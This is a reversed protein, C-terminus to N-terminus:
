ETGNARRIIHWITTQFSQTTVNTGNSVLVSRTGNIACFFKIDGTKYQAIKEFTTADIIQLSNQNTQAILFERTNPDYYKEIKVIPLLIDMKHLLKGHVDFTYITSLISIAVIGSKFVTVMPTSGFNKEELQVAAIFKNDFLTQFVVQLKKNISVVLGIDSSGGIAIIDDCHFSSISLLPINPDSLDWTNVSCDNGCTLLYTGGIIAACTIMAYDHQIRNVEKGNTLSVLSLYYEESEFLALKLSRSVCLVRGYSQALNKPIHKIMSILGLQNLDYYSTATFVFNKTITVIPKDSTFQITPTKLSFSDRKPHESNFIQIPVCGLNNLIHNANEVEEPSPDYEPYCEKRYVNEHDFDNRYIGFVLDIWKNIHSSVYFENELVIRNVAIYHMPQDSTWKPLLVNSFSIEEPKGDVQHMEPCFATGLDFGNENVLAQPMTFLEPILESYYKNTTLKRWEHEFSMFGRNADDFTGSQFRIHETTFPECRIMFNVINMESSYAAPYLYGMANYSEMRRPLDSEYFSQIPRELDRFNEKEHFDFTDLAHYTILFPYVPYQSLDNYSRGSLLNLYYLYSWTTIEHKQWMQTIKLKPLLSMGDMTQYIANCTTQLLKYFDFKKSLSPTPHPLHSYFLDRQGKAFQFLYSKRKYTHIDAGTQQRDFFHNFIFGIDSLSINIRKSKNDSVGEFFFHTSYLVLTGSYKRTITIYNVNTTFQEKEPIEFVAVPKFTIYNQNTQEVQQDDNRDRNRSAEVHMDFHHNISMLIRKGSMSISTSVRYKIDTQPDSWPGIGIALEYMFSNMKQLCLIKDSKVHAESRSISTEILSQSREFRKQYKQLKECELNIFIDQIANIEDHTLKKHFDILPLKERLYEKCSKNLSMLIPKQLDYDDLVLLPIIIYPNITIKLGLLIMLAQFVVYHSKRTFLLASLARINPQTPSDGVLNSLFIWVRQSVPNDQSHHISANYLIFDISPLNTFAKSNAEKAQVITETFFKIQMEKSLNSILDFNLWINHIMSNLLSERRLNKFLLLFAKLVDENFYKPDVSVLFGRLLDFGNISDFSLQMTDSIAVMKAILDIFIGLLKNDYDPNYSKLRRLLPLLSTVSGLTPLIDHPTSVFPLYMCNNSENTTNPHRITFVKHEDYKFDVPSISIVLDKCIEVPFNQITPIMKYKISIDPQDNATLTASFATIQISIDTWKYLPFEFNFPTGNFYLQQDKFEFAISTGFSIFTTLKSPYENFFVKTQIFSPIPKSIGTIGCPAHEFILQSRPAAKDEAIELNSALFSLIDQTYKFEPIKLLSIIRYFDVTSFGCKCVAEFLLLYLQRKEADDQIHILRTCIFDIGNAKWIQLSNMSNQALAILSAMITGEDPINQKIWEFLLKLGQYSWITNGYIALNMFARTKNFSKDAAADKLYTYISSDNYKFSRRLMNVLLQVSEAFITPIKIAIVAIFDLTFTENMYKKVDVPFEPDLLPYVDIIQAKPSNNLLYNLIKLLVIKNKLTELFAIIQPRKEDQYYSNQLFNNLKENHNEAIVICKLLYNLIIPNDAMGILKDLLGYKDIANVYDLRFHRLLDTLINTKKTLDRESIVKLVKENNNEFTRSIVKNISDNLDQETYDIFVSVDDVITDVPSRELVNLMFKMCTKFQSENLKRNHIQSLVINVAKPDGRKAIRTIHKDQPYKVSDDMSKTNYYNEFLWFYFDAALEPLFKRGFKESIAGFEYINQKPVSATILRLLMCQISTFFDIRTAIENVKPMIGKLLAVAYAIYNKDFESAERIRNAAFDMATSDKASLKILSKLLLFLCHNIKDKHFHILKNWNPKFWNLMDQLIILFDGFHEGDFDYYFEIFHYALYLTKVMEDGGLCSLIKHNYSIFLRITRIFLFDLASTSIKDLPLQARFLTYTDYPFATDLGFFYILSNEVVENNSLSTVSLVEEINVSGSEFISKYSTMQPLESYFNPPIETTNTFYKVWLRRSDSIGNQSFFHAIQEM